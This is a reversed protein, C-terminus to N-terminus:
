QRGREREEERVKKLVSLQRVWRSLMSKSIKDLNEAAASLTMGTEEMWLQAQEAIDIKQQTSYRTRGLRADMGSGKELTARNRAHAVGGPNYGGKAILMILFLSSSPPSSHFQFSFPSLCLMMIRLRALFVRCVDLFDHLFLYM